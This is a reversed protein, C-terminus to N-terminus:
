NMNTMLFHTLYWCHTLYFDISLEIVHIAAINKKSHEKYNSVRLYINSTKFLVCGYVLLLCFCILLMGCAVGAPRYIFRLCHVVHISLANPQRLYWFLVMCQSKYPIHMGFAYVVNGGDPDLEIM